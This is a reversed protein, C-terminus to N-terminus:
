LIGVRSVSSLSTQQTASPNSGFPMSGFLFERKFNKYNGICFQYFRSLFLHLLYFFVASM